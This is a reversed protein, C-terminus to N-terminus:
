HSLKSVLANHSDSIGELHHQITANLLFPSSTVGFVVRTFRLVVIAPTDTMLDDVWLFRLTDRNKKDIMIMLFAKEIDAIVAIRHIRFRVLIDFIKQNFKPGTDLCPNVVRARRRM